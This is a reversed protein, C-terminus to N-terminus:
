VRNITRIFQEIEISRWQFGEGCLSCRSVTRRCDGCVHHGKICQLIRRPPNIMDVLCVPCESPKNTPRDTETPLSPVENNTQTDTEASLSPFDTDSRMNGNYGQIVQDQVINNTQSLKSYNINSNSNSRPQNSSMSRPPIYIDRRVGGKASQILSFIERNSKSVDELTKRRHNTTKLDVGPISLMIKVSSIKGYAAAIMLPTCGSTTKANISELSLDLIKQIAEINETDCAMHLPTMNGSNPKDVDLGEQDLLLTVVAQNKNNFLAATLPTWGFPERIYNVDAGQVLCSKVQTLNGTECAKVLVTYPSLSVYDTYLFVILGYLNPPPGNELDLSILAHFSLLLCKQLYKNEIGVFTRFCYKVKISSWLCSTTRIRSV